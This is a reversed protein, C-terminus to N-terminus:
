SELLTITKTGLDLTREITDRESCLLSGEYFMACRSYHAINGQSQSKALSKRRLSAKIAQHFVTTLSHIALWGLCLGVSCASMPSMTLTHVNTNKVYCNISRTACGTKLTRPRRRLVLHVSYMKM